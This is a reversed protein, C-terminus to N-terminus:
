AQPPALPLFLSVLMLTIVISAIPRGRRGRIWRTM